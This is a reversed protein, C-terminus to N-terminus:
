PEVHMEIQEMTTTKKTGDESLDDFATEGIWEEPMENNGDAIQRQDGTAVVRKDPGRAYRM